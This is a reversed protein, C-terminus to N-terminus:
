RLLFQMLLLVALVFFSRSRNFRWALAMGSAFFVYPLYAILASVSRHLPKAQEILLYTLALVAAPLALTIIAKSVARLDYDQMSEKCLKPTRKVFKDSTLQMLALYGRVRGGNDDELGKGLM